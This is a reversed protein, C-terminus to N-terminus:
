VDTVGQPTSVQAHGAKGRPTRTKTDTATANRNPAAAGLLGAVARQEEARKKLYHKRVVKVDKDGIWDAAARESGTLRHVEGAAFKRFGHLGRGKVWAVPKGEADLARTCLERLAQNLAQYTWPQNKAVTRAQVAPLVWVGAAGLRARWVAALRLARVAPRTLPQVREEARKDYTPNWWVARPPLVVGAATPHRVTRGSLNVDAWALHRLANQRPGLQSVLHLAVELRWGRSTHAAREHALRALLRRTDDPSWEPVDHRKEGKALKMTYDAIANEALLKRRKAWRFVQKVAKITEARQNVVVGARKMRGRFEDLTEETVLRAVTHRGLFAEFRGWRHRFAALTKEAWAESEAALHAEALERVTRDRPAPAGGAALRDATGEAFARADVVAEKSYKWSETSLPRGAVESWQVRVYRVSEAREEFVRVLNKGRRGYTAIRKRNAM